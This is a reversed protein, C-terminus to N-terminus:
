KQAIVKNKEFLKVEARDMEMFTANAHSYVCKEIFAQIRKSHYTWLLFFVNLKVTFSKIEM